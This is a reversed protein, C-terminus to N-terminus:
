GKDIGWDPFGTRGIRQLLERTNEAIVNDSVRLMEAIESVQLRDGKKYLKKHSSYKDPCFGIFRLQLIDRQIPTPLIEELILQFDSRTATRLAKRIPNNDPM